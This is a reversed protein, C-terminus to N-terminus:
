FEINFNNFKQEPEEWKLEVKDVQASRPGQHCWDVLKQLRDEEGRVVIKVSGDLENKTWGKLGLEQALHQTDYRFAVGQVLGYIKIVVQKEM